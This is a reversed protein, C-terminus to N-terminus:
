KEKMCDCIEEDSGEGQGIGMDTISIKGQRQLYLLLGVLSSPSIGIEDSRSAVNIRGPIQQERLIQKGLIDLWEEFMEQIEPTAWSSLQCTRSVSELLRSAARAYNESIVRDETAKKNQM